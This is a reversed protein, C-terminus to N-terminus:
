VEKILYKIFPQLMSMMSFRFRVLVFIMWYRNWWGAVEFDSSALSRSKLLRRNEGVDSLQQLVAHDRLDALVCGGASPLCFANSEIRRVTLRHPQDDCGIVPFPGTLRFNSIWLELRVRRFNELIQRVAGLDGALDTLKQSITWHYEPEQCRHRWEPIM